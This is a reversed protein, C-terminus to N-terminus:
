QCKRAFSSMKARRAVLLPHHFETLPEAFFDELGRRVAMESEAYWLDESSIEEIVSPAKGIETRAPPFSQFEKELFDKGFFVCDWPGRNCYGALLPVIKQSEIWM